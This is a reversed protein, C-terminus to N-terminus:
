QKLLDRLLSLNGKMVHSYMEINNDKLWNKFQSNYFESGKDVWIKHPKRSSQKLNKQFHM